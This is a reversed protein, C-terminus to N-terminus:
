KVRFNKPSMKYTLLLAVAIYILTAAIVIAAFYAPPSKIQLCVYCLLYVVSSIIKFFPNKINLETTYPQFVYYLFLHHVSFFLSLCLISLLFPLLGPLTGIGNAASVLLSIGACVAAAILVNMLAVRRLRISFNYLIAKPQRYFSYRLLSIDCNYFMARCVREGISVMYMIFVFAPLTENIRIMQQSAEDHFLLILPLGIAVIAAVIIVRILVPKWLLRRHRIFFLTNLYDYGTKSTVFRSESLSQSYDKDTIEVDKFRMQSKSKTSIMELQERNIVSRLAEGYCPFRLIIRVSFLGCATLAAVFLPHFLFAQFGFPAKLMVPIYAAALGLLIFPYFLWYVQYVPKKFLQYFLLCLAEGVLRAELMLVVLLVGKFFPLGAILGLIVVAPLFCLFEILKSSIVTAVSYRRANMKMLRVSIYANQDGRLAKTSMIAGTAFSLFFLLHVFGDATVAKEQSELFILEPLLVMLYVYLMKGIVKGIAIFILAVISLSQKTTLDAYLNSKVAKGILPLRKFFYILRNAATTFSLSFIQFCTDIM